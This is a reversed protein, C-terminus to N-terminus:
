GYSHNGMLPHRLTYLGPLRGTDFQVLNCAISFPKALHVFTGAPRTPRLTRLGRRSKIKLLVVCYCPSLTAHPCLLMPFQRKTLNESHFIKAIALFGEKPLITIPRKRLRGIFVYSRVWISPGAIRLTRPEVSECEARRNFSARSKGCDM